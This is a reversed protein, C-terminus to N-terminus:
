PALGVLWLPWAAAALLTGLPLRTALAIRQGRLHMAGAVVLGLLAALLLVLPLAQWGLWAGIGAFLKPDGGGIGVRGRLRHYAAAIGALVVWGGAAGIVNDTLRPVGTAVAAVLGAAILTFTLRDPLWFHDLDLVALTLLLWAMVAGALGAWGAHSALSAGGLLAGIVELSLHKAAIPAACRRCRGRQAVYSLVPVLEAPSLTIGCADCRSRGAAVSRGGPWRIAITALFSGAILGGLMGALLRLWLDAALEDLAM